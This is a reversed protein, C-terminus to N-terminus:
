SGNRVGHSILKKCEDSIFWSYKDKLIINQEQKGIFHSEDELDDDTGVLELLTMEQMIKLATPRSCKLIQMVENTGLQGNNYILHKFIKSRNPLASDLAVRITMVLDDRTINKRGCILAHGRTVNYLLQNLRDPMEVIIQTHNYKKQGAAEEWVNIPSRLKALVMALRAIIQTLNTDDKEKDWIIGQPYKSWLTKIFEETAERCIIEKDRCSTKLQNALALEDKEAGDINFFFLRSGLNGMVKWIRPRIPTSASLLMFLYDGIYGRKGHVGGSKEYGEGDLVRILIGLMEQVDEDRKAFIPAMDRVLLTKYRIQPLMDIKELDEKKRNAAHSVFSAPTFDDATFVLEKITSFFNLTVTKGSSPVDVYVLAFPNKVDDILLQGIVSLGAEAAFALDPFNDSLINKWEEIGIKTRPTLKVFRENKAPTNNKVDNKIDELQTTKSM